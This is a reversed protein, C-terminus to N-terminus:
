AERPTIRELYQPIFNTSLEARRFLPDRLLGLHFPITTKIGDIGFEQLARETRAIAEARDQGWCILKALLSDYHPPM